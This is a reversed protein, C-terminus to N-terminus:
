GGHRGTRYVFSDGVSLPSTGGGTIVTIEAVANGGTWPPAIAKISTESGVEFSTASVAGFRVATANALHTGTITVSTAGAIPGKAPQVESVSPAYYHYQDAASTPSTGGYTEVTVDVTGSGAPAVASIVGESEVKFSTANTSGFRVATVFQGFKDPGHVSTFGSGSADPM